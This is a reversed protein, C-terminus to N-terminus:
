FPGPSPRLAEVEPDLECITLFDAILSNRTMSPSAAKRPRRATSRRASSRDSLDLIAQASM